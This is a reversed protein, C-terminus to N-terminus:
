ILSRLTLVIDKTAKRRQYALAVKTGTPRDFSRVASDLDLPPKGDISLIVDGPRLGVRDAPSLPVISRVVVQGDRWILWLGSGDFPSPAANTAAAGSQALTLTGGLEDITVVFRSLLGSGIVAHVTSSLLPEESSSMRDVLPGAITLAGMSMAGAREVTGNVEHDPEADRIGISRRSFDSGAGGWVAIDEDSCVDVFCPPENKGDIGCAVTPMGDVLALPIAAAGAPRAAAAAAEDRYITMSVNAYDITVPYHAFLDAGLIGTANSGLYAQAFPGIRATAVKLGVFRVAGVQLTRISPVDGGRNVPISDDITTQRLSSLLFDRRVGDLVVPVYPRGGHMALPITSSAADGQWFSPALTPEPRPTVVGIPATTPSIAQADPPPAPPPPLPTLTPTPTPTETPAPAPASSATPVPQPLRAAVALTCSAIAIILAVAFARAIM